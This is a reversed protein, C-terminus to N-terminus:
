WVCPQEDWVEPHNGHCNPSMSNWLGLYDWHCTCISHGWLPLATFRIWENMRRIHWQICQIGKLFARDKDPLLGLMVEIYFGVDIMIPVGGLFFLAPSQSNQFFFMCCNHLRWVKWSTVCCVRQQIGLYSLQKWTPDVAAYPTGKWAQVSDTWNFPPKACSYTYIVIPVFCSRALKKHNHLKQNYTKNKVFQHFHSLFRISM